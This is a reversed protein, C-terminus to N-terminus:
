ANRAKPADGSPISLSATMPSFSGSDTWPRKGADIEDRCAVFREYAERAEQELATM